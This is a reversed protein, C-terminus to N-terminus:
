DMLANNPKESNSDLADQFLHELTPRPVITVGLQYSFLSKSIKILLNNLGLLVRSVLGRGFVLPFPVPIGKEEVIDYGAHVLLKHLSNLTYLRKHDKDLIGRIGYNFQGLVLAIRMTVFGINATTIVVKPKASYYRSRIKELFKEPNNLHEIIDLMLITDINDSCQNFNFQEVDSQFVKYSFDKEKKSILTDISITKVKKEALKETVFGPGCGLNLVTSGTKVKDLAYQHSSNFGFKSEYIENQKTLDFKPHYFIGWDVFKSQLSSCLILYAYKIGNVNSKEAGYFTPIPIELIRKKTKLIQIIVDTDFDFYDSNYKFPITRMVNVSYARFGTHFESLSSKLIRNQMFTLIQNGLWKYIPMGGKLAENKNIMRSGFVLDAEGKLIPTVMKYIYEPPYQGDGHLLLVVDFGKLIAYYYGIKQNGGYGLNKPNSLVVINLKPYNKSYEKAKFFTDDVSEDDIILVESEYLDNEWVDDPIRKLVGEIFREAEYCVVFILVKKKM